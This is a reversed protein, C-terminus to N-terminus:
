RKTSATKLKSQLAERKAENFHGAELLRGVAEFYEMLFKFLQAPPLHELGNAPASLDPAWLGFKKAQILASMVKPSELRVYGEPLPRALRSMESGLKKRSEARTSDLRRLLWDTWLGAAFATVGLATARVWSQDALGLLFSVANPLADRDYLGFNEAMRDLVKVALPSIFLTFVGAAIWRVWASFSQM